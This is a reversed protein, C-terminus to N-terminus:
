EATSRVDGYQLRAAAGARCGQIAALVAGLTMWKWVFGTLDYAVHVKDFVGHSGKAGIQTLCCLAVTGCVKYFTLHALHRM